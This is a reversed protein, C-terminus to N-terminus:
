QSQYTSSDFGSSVPGSPAALSSVRAM